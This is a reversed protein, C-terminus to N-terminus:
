TGAAIATATERQDRKKKQIAPTSDSQTGPIAITSIGFGLGKLPNQWRIQGTAWDLCFFSGKTTAFIDEGSIAVNVFDSGKLHTRWLEAGTSRDFAAVSGGIGVFVINSGSM